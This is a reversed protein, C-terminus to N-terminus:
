EISLDGGPCEYIHVSLPMPQRHGCASCTQSSYTAPMNVIRRGADAKARLHRFLGM